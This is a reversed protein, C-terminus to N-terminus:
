QNAKYYLDRFEADLARIVRIFGPYLVEPLWCGETRLYAEMESYLFPQPGSAHYQRQGELELYAQWHRAYGRPV